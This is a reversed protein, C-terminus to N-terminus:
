GGSPGRHEGVNAVNAPMHGPDTYLALALLMCVDCRIEALLNGATARGLGLCRAAEDLSKGEFETLRFLDCAQPSKSPALKDMCACNLHKLIDQLEGDIQWEDRAPRPPVPTKNQM